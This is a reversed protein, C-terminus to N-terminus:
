VWCEYPYGTLEEGCGYGYLEEEMKKEAAERLERYRKADEREKEEELMRITEELEAEYLAEEEEHRRKEELEMEYARLMNQKETRRSAM